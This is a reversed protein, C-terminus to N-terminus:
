NRNLFIVENPAHSEVEPYIANYLKLRLQYLLFYFTHLVPLFLTGGIIVGAAMGPHNEYDLIPYIFPNCVIETTGDQQKQPLCFGTGGAAWYILSFFLYWIGFAVPFYFHLVRWPRDCIFFDIIVSITNVAHMFFNFARAASTKLMNTKLVYPHLLIWYVITIFLAVAFAMNGIAWSIKHTLPLTMGWNSGNKMDGIYRFTVLIADFVYHICLISIGQQTMFIVWKWAAGEWEEYVHSIHGIITIVFIVAVCWRYILYWLSCKDEPCWQSRTFRSPEKSSLSFKELSFEDKFVKCCDGM